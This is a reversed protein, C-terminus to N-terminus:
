ERPRGPKKEAIIVDQYTLGEPIGSWTGFRIPERIELGAAALMARLDQEEFAVAAEPSGAHMARAGDLAVDFSLTARGQELSARTGDNLIFYTLFARGGPKLVRAVEATYHEVDPRLMHTFVSTLYVVDFAEGKFPFDYEVAKVAGRPNYKANYVDAHHFFFNPHRTSIHRQCWRVARPVIDFGFWAGEASLHGTLPRAIRGVGCGVELVHDDTQMDTAAVLKKALQEGAWIFDGGGGVFWLRRPPVLPDRGRVRDIVEQPLYGVARAALKLEPSM